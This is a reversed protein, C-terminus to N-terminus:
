GRLLSATNGGLALSCQLELPVSRETRGKRCTFRQLVTSPLSRNWCVKLIGHKCPPLEQGNLLTPIGITSGRAHLHGSASQKGIGTKPHMYLQPIFVESGNSCWLVWGFHALGRLRQTSSLLVVFRKEFSCFEMSAYGGGREVWFDVLEMAWILAGFGGVDRGGAGGVYGFFCPM